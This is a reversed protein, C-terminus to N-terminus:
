IIKTHPIIYTLIISVLPPMNREIYVTDIKLLYGYYKVNVYIIYCCRVTAPLKRLMISDILLRSRDDLFVFVTTISISRQYIYVM